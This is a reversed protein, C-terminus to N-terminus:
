SGVKNGVRGGVDLVGVRGGVELDGVLNGM